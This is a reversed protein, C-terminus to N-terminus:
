LYDPLEKPLVGREVRANNRKRMTSKALRIGRKMKDSFRALAASRILISKGDYTFGLYQLPKSSFQVGVKTYFDRVETKNENIELKLNKIQESVYNHVDDKYQSPVIFLMDDCYRFYKGNCDTTMKNVLVDFDLMYINSLLASIPSGQPIGFIKKNKKILDAPRVKNRFDVPECIRRRGNKPNHLSIELSDYLKIKNISSFKTLSKFVAYHDQPLSLGGILGSWSKKLIEHDINDFFGSIDLAIATCNEMSKIENFADLAFEINSKGLERFALVCHEIEKHHLQEEYLKSLEFAYYSYIHSDVHAAYSIVRSKKNKVIRKTDPDKKIKESVITYELLPYFSHRSVAIPNMVIKEAKHQSMPHDFHLYSRPRYWSDRYIM